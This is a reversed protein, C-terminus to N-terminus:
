RPCAGSRSLPESIMMIHRLKKKIAIAYEGVEILHCRANKSLGRISGLLPQSFYSELLLEAFVTRKVTVQRNEALAPLQM